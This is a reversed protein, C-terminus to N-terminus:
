GRAAGEQKESREDAYGKLQRASREFIESFLMMAEGWSELPGDTEKAWKALSIVGNETNEPKENADTLLGCATFFYASAMMAAKESGPEASRLDEDSVRGTVFVSPWVSKESM